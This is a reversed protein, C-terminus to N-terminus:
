DQNFRFYICVVSYVQRHKCIDSNVGMQINLTFIFCDMKKVKFM